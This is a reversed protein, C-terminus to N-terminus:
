AAMDLMRNIANDADAESGFHRSLVFNWCVTFAAKYFVNFDDQNMTRFNISKPEKILSGDPLRVVDYYGCETKVWKHIQASSAPIPAAMKSARSSQWDQMYSTNLNGLAEPSLGNRYLYDMVRKVARQEIPQILGSEPVWYDKVLGILGGFYLRHHQLSRGTQKVCVTKVAQGIKYAERMVAYDHETAPVLARGNCVMMMETSM